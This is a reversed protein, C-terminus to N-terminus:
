ITLGCVSARSHLTVVSRNFCFLDGSSLVSGCSMSSYRCQLCSEFLFESREAAKHRVKHSYVTCPLKKGVFILLM